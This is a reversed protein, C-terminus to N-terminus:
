GLPSKAKYADAVDQETELIMAEVQRLYTRLKTGETGPALRILSRLEAAQRQLDSIKAFSNDM